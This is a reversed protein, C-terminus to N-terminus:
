LNVDMKMIYAPDGDKGIEIKLFEFGAKEYCRIARRNAPAPDVIIAKPNRNNVIMKVFEKVAATGIGMNLLSCEGIFQDIGIVNDQELYFQFYGLPDGADSQLIYRSVTDTDGTYHAIVREITDDGDDWWEKVHPEQLWRFLVELDSDELARFSNM